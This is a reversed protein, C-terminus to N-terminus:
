FAPMTYQPFIKSIPDREGDKFDKLVEDKNFYTILLLKLSEIIDNETKAEM